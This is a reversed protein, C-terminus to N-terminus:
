TREHRNIIRVDIREPDALPVFVCAVAVRFDKAAAAPALDQYTTEATEAATAGALGVRRPEGGFVPLPDANPGEYTSVLRGEGPRLAVEFARRLTEGSPGRLVVSLGAGGGVLCGSIRPTFIPADPEFDWAALAKSLVAVPDAGPLLGDRVDATQKGNSVAIGAKDFLVAPYVLLDVNGKKLIEEDTPQVWIGGDRLVLKRAQSSPSRGTIAYIIAAKGGERPAGIVIFRGPYELSAILGTTRGM